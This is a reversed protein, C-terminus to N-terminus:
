SHYYLTIVIIIAKAILDFSSEVMAIFVEYLYGESHILNLYYLM